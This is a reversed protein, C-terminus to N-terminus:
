LGKRLIEEIRDRQAKSSQPTFVPPPLASASNKVTAKTEREAATKTAAVPNKATLKTAMARPSITKAAMDTSNKDEDTKLAAVSNKISESFYRGDIIVPMAPPLDVSDDGKLYTKFEALVKEIDDRAAQYDFHPAKGGRGSLELSRLAMRLYYEAQGIRSMAQQEELSRTSRYIDQASSHTPMILSLALMAAASNNM